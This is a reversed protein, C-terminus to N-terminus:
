LKIAEEKSIIRKVNSLTNQKKNLSKKILNDLGTNVWFNYINVDRTQGPRIVRCMSHAKDKYDFTQSFYIINNAYQWNHGFSGVGYTCLLIDKKTKFLNLDQKEKGTYIVVDGLLEKLIEIEDLFKVYIITKEDASKIREILKPLYAKKDRCCTYKHQFSQAAALFDVNFKGQLFAEKHQQYELQESESLDFTKDHQFVECDIELDADFIYPRIMEILAAENEPKSWRKWPKYGDEMYVLFNNAFQAETMNLIRPSIFQIQSYLDILGKTLPTGNLILRFTFLNCMDLLRQTRGAETNKITISEDVICFTKNKQALNYMELYKNDSASVGEVTFFHIPRFLDGSWKKIENHYNKENILNAPALWIILDFDNQRSAALEVAVKTKGTAMKMFLAGAKLRSMKEFAAAQKIDISSNM